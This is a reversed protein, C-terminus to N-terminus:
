PWLEGGGRSLEQESCPRCSLADANGHREGTRHAVMFEETGRALSGGPGRTGLIDDAVAILMTLAYPSISAACTTNSISSPLSQLWCSEGLLM